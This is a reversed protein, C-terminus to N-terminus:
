YKTFGLLKCQSVYGKRVKYIFSYRGAYYPVIIGSKRMASIYVFSSRDRITMLVYDNRTNSFRTKTFKDTAPKHKRNGM